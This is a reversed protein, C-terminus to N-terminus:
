QMTSNNSARQEGGGVVVVVRGLLQILEHEPDCWGEVNCWGDFSEDTITLYPDVGTTLVGIAVCGVWLIDIMDNIM